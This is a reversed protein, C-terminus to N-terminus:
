GINAWQYNGSDDHSLAQTDGASYNAITNADPLGGTISLFFWKGAKPSNFKVLQGPALTASADVVGNIFEGSQPYISVIHATNNFVFQEFGIDSAMLKVSDNDSACTDVSNYMTTLDVASSQGGGAHATISITFDKINFDSLMSRMIAPTILQTDNDPIKTAIDSSIDTYNKQAM